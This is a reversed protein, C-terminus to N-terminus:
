PGIARSVVARSVVHRVDDRAGRKAGGALATGCDSWPEAAPTPTASPNSPDADFLQRLLLEKAEKARQEATQEKTKLCTPPPAAPSSAAAAAAAPAPAAAAPM